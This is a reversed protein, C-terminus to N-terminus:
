RMMDVITGKGEYVAGLVSMSLDFTSKMDTQMSGMSNTKGGAKNFADISGIVIDAKVKECSANAAAGISDIM